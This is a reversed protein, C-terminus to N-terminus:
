NVRLAKLLRHFPSKLSSADSTYIATFSNSFCTNFANGVTSGQVMTNYICNAQPTGGGVAISGDQSGQCLYSANYFSLPLGATLDLPDYPYYVSANVLPGGSYAFSLLANICNTPGPEYTLTWYFDYGPGPVSCLQGIDTSSFPYTIGDITQGLGAAYNECVFDEQAQALSLNMSLCLLSTLLLRKKMYM